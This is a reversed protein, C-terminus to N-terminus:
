ALRALLEGYRRKVALERQTEATGTFYIASLWAAMGILVFAARKM